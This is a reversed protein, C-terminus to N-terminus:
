GLRGRKEADGRPRGSCFSAKDALGQHTVAHAKESVKHAAYMVAALRWCGASRLSRLLPLAVKLLTNSKSPLRGSESLERGRRPARTPRGTVARQGTSASRVKWLLWSEGSRSLRMERLLIGCHRRLEQGHAISTM